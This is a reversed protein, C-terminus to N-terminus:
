AIVPSRVPFPTPPWSPRMAGGTYTATAIGALALFVAIAVLALRLRRAPRRDDIRRLLAARAAAVTAKEPEPVAEFARALVALESM